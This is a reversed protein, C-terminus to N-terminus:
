LDTVRQSKASRLMRVFMCWLGGLWASLFGGFFWYLQVEYRPDVTSPNVAQGGALWQILVDIM